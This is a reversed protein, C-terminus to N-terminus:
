IIDVLDERDEVLRKGLVRKKNERAKLECKYDMTGFELPTKDEKVCYKISGYTSKASKINPHFGELDFIRSNTIHMRKDYKM